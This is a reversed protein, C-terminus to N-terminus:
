YTGLTEYMISHLLHSNYTEGPTQIVCKGGRPSISWTSWLVYTLNNHVGVHLERFSRTATHPSIQGGDIISPLHDTVMPRAQAFHLASGVAQTCAGVLRLKLSKEVCALSSLNTVSLRRKM